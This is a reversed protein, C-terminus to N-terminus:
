VNGRKNQNVAWVGSVILVTGAVLKWDLAEGLLAVGLGVSVVPITYTVMAVRTPGIEHLLQYFLLYSVGAGLVGLWAIAAWTLPAAPLRFPSEIAPTVMWMIIDAAIMTLLAQNIPSWGRFKARGYVNAVAYLFASLLMALYAVTTGEWWGGDTVLSSDSKRFMLLAVGAFGVALGLVRTRTLRDDHLFVHALILTFMPVTANLVGAIASDIRAEAWTILIWPIAASVLGQIVVATWMGPQPTLRPRKVLWIVGVALIAMALRLTVITLPGSERIAIKIWLFSAGWMITLALFSM